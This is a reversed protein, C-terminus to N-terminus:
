EEFQGKRSRYGTTSSMKCSEGHQAGWQVFVENCQVTCVLCHHLLKRGFLRRSSILALAFLVPRRYQCGHLVFQFHMHGLELSLPGSHLSSYFPLCTHLCM